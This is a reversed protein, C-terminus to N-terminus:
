NAIVNKVMELPKSMKNKKTLNRQVSVYPVNVTLLLKLVLMLKRFSESPLKM